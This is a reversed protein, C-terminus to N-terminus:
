GFPRFRPVQRGDTDTFGYDRALDAVFFVRGSRELVKRDGALAAVARGVYRTSESLDFRFQKKLKETSLMRVVRETRMFGPMLTVFAIKAKRGEVAMGSMLRDITHHSLEWLLQGGPEARAAAETADEDGKALIGDTVSAVLGGGSQALLPAAHRCALYYAFPGAGMVGAWLNAPQEWFPRGWAAQRAEMTPYADTGGWVANALVHLDKSEARVREFVAAVDAESTADARAPIGIGGLATVEEATEEVTGPAGDVPKPGERSTRGVAYVTAGAEGLALAIGKGAGRSAGMVVAVRGRLPPSPGKPPAASGAARTPEGAATQTTSRTTKRTQKPM